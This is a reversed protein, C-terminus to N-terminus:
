VPTTSGQITEDGLPQHMGLNRSEGAFCYCSQSNVPLSLDPPLTTSLSNMLTESLTTIWPLIASQRFIYMRIGFKPCLNRQQRLTHDLGMVQGSQVTPKRVWACRGDPGLAESVTITIFAKGVMRLMVRCVRGCEFRIPEKGSM